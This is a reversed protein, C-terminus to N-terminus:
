LLGVVGIQLDEAYRLVLGGACCLECLAIKM